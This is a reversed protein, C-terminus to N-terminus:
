GNLSQLLERRKELANDPVLGLYYRSTISTNAHGLLKSIQVMDAGKELLVSALTHRVTHISFSCELDLKNQLQKYCATISSPRPIKGDKNRFFLDQENVLQHETYYADRLKCWRKLQQMVLASVPIVREANKTKTPGIRGQSWAQTITIANATFDINNRALGLAEGVRIGTHMILSVILRNVDKLQFEYDELFSGLAQFDAAKMVKDSADAQQHLDTGGIVLDDMPNYRIDGVRVAYRFMARLHNADKRLTEHSYTQSLQNFGAQLLPQKVDKLKLKPFVKSIHAMSSLYTNQTGQRVNKKQLRVWFEM